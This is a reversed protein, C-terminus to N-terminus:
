EIGIINFELSFLFDAQTQAVVEASLDAQRM